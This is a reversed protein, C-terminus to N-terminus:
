TDQGQIPIPTLSFGHDGATGSLADDSANWAVVQVYRSYIAIIGSAAFEPTASAEDVVISGIYKLNKLKDEASVALDGTGDDNDVHTGDSTKIYFDVTQAVVPATAFKTWARWEFMFPRAGATRDWQASQRGAGSALSTLTFVHDGGSPAFTTATESIVYAKSTM